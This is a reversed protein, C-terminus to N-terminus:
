ASLEIMSNVDTEAAPNAEPFIALGEAFIINGETSNIRITIMTEEGDEDIMRVTVEGPLLAQVVGEQSVTAIGADGTIWTLESCDTDPSLIAKLDLAEGETMAIEFSNANADKSKKEKNTKVKKTKSWKSYFTGKKKVSTYTRIRVYYTKGAQLKKIIKTHKNLGKVKVTKSDSFDKKLSYEIQYGKIKEGKKWTLSIQKDGGTLDTFSTAKPIINFTLETSGTFDGLGTVTYKYPGINKSNKDYTVSYDRGSKLKKNGYKVTVSLKKIQKSTPYGYAFGVSTVGFRSTVIGDDDVTVTDETGDIYTVALKLGALDSMEINDTRLFELKRPKDVVTLSTARPIKELFANYNVGNGDDDYESATIILTANKSLTFINQQYVHEIGNEDCGIDSNFYYRNGNAVVEVDYNSMDTLRLHYQQQQDSVYFLKATKGAPLTGAEVKGPTLEILAVDDSYTSWRAAWENESPCVIIYTNGAKLSGIDYHYCDYQYDEPFCSSDFDTSSLYVRNGDSDILSPTQSYYSESPKYGVDFAFMSDTEPTFRFFMIGRGTQFTDTLERPTNVSVTARSDGDSSYSSVSMEAVYKEGKQLHYVGKNSDYYYTDVLSTMPDGNSDYVTFYPYHASEATFQYYDDAPATFAFYEGYYSLGTVLPEGVTLARM